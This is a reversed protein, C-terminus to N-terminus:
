CSLRLLVPHRLLQLARVHVYSCFCVHVHTGVCEFTGMCMVCRTACIMCMVCRTACVMCMVCRTAYVMGGELSTARRSALSLSSPMHQSDVINATRLARQLGPLEQLCVYLSVMSCKTKVCAHM